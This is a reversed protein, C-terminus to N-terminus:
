GDHIITCLFRHNTSVEMSNKQKAQGSIATVDDIGANGYPTETAKQIAQFMRWALDQLAEDGTTRYLIFVSEIAEPRLIYSPVHVRPFGKPLNKNGHRRWREEDWNCGTLSPCTLMDFIEPMIGTPFADYAYACGRTLKTGIDLHEQRSFLKGGLIFMGGAFCSLHQGEPNLTVIGKSVTATGSFLIDNNDPLMPRFLLHKGVADMADMYMKKYIAEQGGLLSYMKPLYEYLSDALAGLTFSNEEFKTNRADIFTPWMGPLATSNQHEEFVSTLHAVASYYKPDGTIQSLRTFELSFSGVSASIQHTEAILNGQKAQEFDLWFAPIRNPTDFGAYLMDGLEVAKTLLAQEQSLDYAALLGGLHRINTEFMNCATVTTNAWDLDAVARVADLFEAKLGMIWLTDLSDILTAAWGGYTNKGTGTLPELEDKLWAHAKYNQWCRQFAALVAKQRPIRRAADSRGEPEFAHQIPPVQVHSTPLYTHPPTAHHPTLSTWNFSSPRIVIPLSKSIGLPLIYSAFPRFLLLTTMFLAFSIIWRSLCRGGSMGPPGAMKPRLYFARPYLFSLCILTCTSDLAIM